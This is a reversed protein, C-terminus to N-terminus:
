RLRFEMEVVVLLFVFHFLDTLDSIGLPCSSCEWPM